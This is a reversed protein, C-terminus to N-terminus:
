TYLCDQALRPRPQNLLMTDSIVTHKEITSFITISEYLNYERILITTRPKGSLMEDSPSGLVFYASTTISLIMMKGGGGARKAIGEELSDRGRACKTKNITSNKMHYAFKIITEM